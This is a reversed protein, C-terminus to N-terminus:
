RFEVVPQDDELVEIVFGASEVTAIIKDFNVMDNGHEVRLINDVDELDFNMTAQPFALSLATLVEEADSLNNVSTKFVEVM